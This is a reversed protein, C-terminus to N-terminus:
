QTDSVIVLMLSQKQIEKECDFCYKKKRVDFKNVQSCNKTVTKRTNGETRDHENTDNGHMSLELGGFISATSELEM